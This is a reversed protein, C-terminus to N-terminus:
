AIAVPQFLVGVRDCIRNGCILMPQGVEDIVVRVPLKRDEQKRYKFLLWGEEGSQSIDALTDVTAKPQGVITAYLFRDIDASTMLIDIKGPVQYIVTHCDILIGQPILDLNEPFIM